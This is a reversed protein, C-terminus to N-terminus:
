LIELMGMEKLEEISDSKDIVEIRYYEKMIYTENKFKPIIMKTFVKEIFYTREDDDRVIMLYSRSTIISLRILHYKM